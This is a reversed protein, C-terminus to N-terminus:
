RQLWFTIGLFASFRGMITCKVKVSAKFCYDVLFLDDDFLLLPLVSQQQFLM